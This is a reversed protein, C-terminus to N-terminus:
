LGGTVLFGGKSGLVPLGKSGSFGKLFVPQYPTLLPPPHTYLPYLTTSSPHPPTHPTYMLLVPEATNKKVVYLILWALNSRGLLNSIVVYSRDIKM